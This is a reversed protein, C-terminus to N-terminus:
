RKFQPFKRHFEEKDKYMETEAVNIIKKIDVGTDDIAFGVAALPIEPENWQWRNFSVCRQVFNMTRPNVAIIVFEDGHIRYIQYDPFMSKLLNALAVIKKNGEEHNFTDNIYKLGNLDVYIAGITKGNFRALDREFAYNNMLGTMEDYSKLKDSEREYIVTIDRVSLAHTQGDDNAVVEMIMQRWEGGVLRKYCCHTMELPRKTFEVFTDVDNPNLLGSKIFWEFYEDINNGVPRNTEDPPLKWSRYEHTKFDVILIKNYISMLNSIQKSKEDM